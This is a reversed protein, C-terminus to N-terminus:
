RRVAVVALKNGFRGTLANAVRFSTTGVTFLGPNRSLLRVVRGPEHRYYMAYRRSQLVRFGGTELEAEVTEADLRAVSNGSEERELALGARAALATIAARAPESVSVASRAVRTMEALGSSHTTSTISATM